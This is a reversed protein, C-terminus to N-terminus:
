EGRDMLSAEVEAEALEKVEFVYGRDWAEEASQLVGYMEIALQHKWVSIKGQLTMAAEYHSGNEGFVSRLLATTSTVWKRSARGDVQTSFDGNRKTELVLKLVM